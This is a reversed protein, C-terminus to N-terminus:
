FLVMLNELVLRVNSNTTSIIKKSDEINGILALAKAPFINIMESKGLMAQRLIVIWYEMKQLLAPVDKSIREAFFLRENFEMSFLARFEGAQALLEELKTKNELFNRVLGPRGLSWFIMDARNETDIDVMSEIESRSLLDFRMLQCRSLITPLLKKENEAVLILVSKIPPEELIKLLANQAVINMKQASRIIVVRYKEGFSTLSFEKQLSKIEDTKIDKEKFIGAKEEVAPAIIRLNQDLGRGDGGTLKSAFDMAVLFKGVSKPGCFLYAHSISKRERARELSNIIREHGTISM